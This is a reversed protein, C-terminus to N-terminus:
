SMFISIIGVIGLIRIFGGTEPGKDLGTLARLIVTPGLATSDFFFLFFRLLWNVQVLFPKSQQSALWRFSECMGKFTALEHM